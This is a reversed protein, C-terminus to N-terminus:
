DGMRTLPNPASMRLAEIMQSAGVPEKVGRGSRRRVHRPEACRTTLAAGRGGGWRRGGGGRRGAGAGAGGADAGPGGAEAGVDAGAGVSPGAGGAGAEAGSGVGAGSGVPGAPVDGCAGAGPVPAEGPAPRSGPAVDAPAVAPVAGVAAGPEPGRADPLHPPCATQRLTQLAVNNCSALLIFVVYGVTVVVQGTLGPRVLVIVGEGPAYCWAVTMIVAHPGARRIWRGAVLSGLIGGASGLGLVLGLAQASWGLGRVAYLTTLPSSGAIMFTILAMSVNLSRQQPGRLAFRLGACTERWVRRLRGGDERAPADATGRTTPTGFATAGPAQEADAPAPAQPDRVFLLTIANVAYTVADAGIARAAGIAGILAGGLGPGALAAISATTAIRGNAELLREPGLLTAPFSRYAALFFTACIGNALAVGLLLPLGLFGLVAGAFVGGLTVARVADCVLMVRRKSVRDVVVGAPLAFLLTGLSGAAGLAGVAEAGAHLALVATLPLAILTVQSGILSFSQGGWLLLFDRHRWLPVAPGREVQSGGAM